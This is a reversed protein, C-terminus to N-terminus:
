GDTTETCVAIDRPIKYAALSKRLFRQLENRTVEMGHRLTVEAAPSEGLLDSPTSFVRCTKVAPHEMMRSEVETCYVNLGGVIVMRRMRGTLHVYGEKDFFAIDGTYFWEDKLYTATAAPQNLYEKMVNEGKVILEGESGTPLADGNKGIIKVQLNYLPPGVTDKRNGNEDLPNFTIVPGAETAGYGQYIERGFANEFDALLGPMPAGGGSIFARMAPYPNGESGFKDTFRRLITPVAILITVNEKLIDKELRDMNLMEHLLITAGQMIPLNLSTTLSFAHYLPLITLFVDAETISSSQLAGRANALLGGHTLCAGLCCGGVGNTYVILATDDPNKEVPDLTSHTERLISKIDTRSPDGMNDAYIIQRGGAAKLIAEDFLPHTVILGVGADEFMYGMERATYLPNVAVVEAGSALAGYFAVPFEPINPLVVAVRKGPGMEAKHLYFAFKMTQECLEAYTIRRDYFVIATKDPFREASQKVVSALNM